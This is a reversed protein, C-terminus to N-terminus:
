APLFATILSCHVRELSQKLAFVPVIGRRRFDPTRPAFTPATTTVEKYVFAPFEDEM